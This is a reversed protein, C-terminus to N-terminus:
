CCALNVSATRTTGAAMLRIPSGGSSATSRLAIQVNMGTTKHKGSYLEPRSSWSWCPLLTDDVIYQQRDDLEAATPM